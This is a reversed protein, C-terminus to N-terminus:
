GASMNLWVWKNIGIGFRFAYILCEAPAQFVVASLLVNMDIGSPISGFSMLGALAQKFVPWSINGFSIALLMLFFAPVTIKLTKELMEYAVRGSFTLVLALGLSVWAWVM